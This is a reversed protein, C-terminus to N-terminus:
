TDNEVHENVFKAVSQLSKRFEITMPVGMLIYHKCSACVCNSGRMGCLGVGCIFCQTKMISVAPDEESVPAVVQTDFGMEGFRPFTDEM